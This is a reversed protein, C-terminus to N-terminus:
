NVGHDRTEQHGEYGNNRSDKQGTKQPSSGLTSKWNLSQLTDPEPDKCRIEDAALPLVLRHTCCFVM